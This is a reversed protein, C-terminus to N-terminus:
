RTFSLPRCAKRKEDLHHCFLHSRAPGRGLIGSVLWIYDLQLWEPDRHNNHRISGMLDRYVFFM